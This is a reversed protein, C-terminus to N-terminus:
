VTRCFILRHSSNPRRAVCIGRGCDSPKSPQDHSMVHQGLSITRDLLPGLLSTVTGKSELNCCHTRVVEVVSSFILILLLLRAVVRWLTRTRDLKVGLIDSQGGWRQLDVVLDLLINGM